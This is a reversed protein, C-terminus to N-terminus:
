YDSRVPWVYPLSNGKENEDSPEGSSMIVCWVEDRASDTTSSWYDYSQVDMFPHGDPLAPNSEGSDVLSRLENFNPLRWEGATSGDTLGCSGNALSNCDSLANSWSRM